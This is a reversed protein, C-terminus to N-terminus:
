PNKQGITEGLRLRVERGQRTNDLLDDSPRWRNPEGVIIVTSGGFLFYGKEDGRHFDQSPPHTQVIKGVFLAGIELYALKGFNKTELISIQRENKLFLDPHAKLAVPNVSHLVGPVQYTEIIKGADPFHFRHYDVPCLRAIILPGGLFPRAMESSNLLTELNLFKGKVPFKLEDSIQEFALYRAEAPAPLLQSHDPFIRLGPKFRRIFFDNFSAYSAAEYDNMPIQFNKIFSDIKSRSWSSSQYFGYLKSLWSHIFIAQTLGRGLSTEYAWRLWADGYIKESEEKQEARNWIKIERTHNSMPQYFWILSLGVVAIIFVANRKLPSFTILSFPKNLRM